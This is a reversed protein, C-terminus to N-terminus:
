WLICLNIYPPLNILQGKTLGGKSLGGKSLSLTVPLNRRQRFSLPSPRFSLSLTPIVPASEEKTPIVLLPASHYSASPQLTEKTQCLLFGPIFFARYFRAKLKNLNRQKTLRSCPLLEQEGTAAVICLHITGKRQWTRCLHKICFIPPVPKEWMFHILVWKQLM